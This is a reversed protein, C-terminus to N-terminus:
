EASAPTPSWCVDIDFKIAPSEEKSLLDDFNTTGDKFRTINAHVGDIRVTDVVLQKSLLPIVALFVKASQISAFEKDGNHESLSVKGLDAGIKPWFALKIDGEINLTRQKKDKVLKVILPKYDNPNFTAAIVAVAILLLVILGGVGILSYKLYKNM